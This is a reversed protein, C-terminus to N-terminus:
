DKTSSGGDFAATLRAALRSSLDSGDGAAPQRLLSRLRTDDLMSSFHKLIDVCHCRRFAPLGSASYARPDTGGLEVGSWTYVQYTEAKKSKRILECLRRM